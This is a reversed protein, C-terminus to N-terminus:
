EEGELVHRQVADRVTQRFIAGSYPTKDLGKLHRHGAILREETFLEHAEEFDDYFLPYDEGFYEVVAPHRNVVLPTDRAACEIVANNASSDFLELFAVNRSLLEDYTDDSVRPLERVEGREERTGLEKWYNQVKNEAALVWKAGLKLAVKAFGPVPPLQYIARTNRLWWGIQVIKRDPNFLFSEEDFATKPIETPHTASVFPVGLMERLPRALHESLAIGLKLHQLSRLWLPTSFIFRPSQIVDFWLPMDVPNHFVGVWPQTYPKVMRGYSFSREMFDEFLVGDASSILELARWAYPWGSRHHGRGVPQKNHQLKIM